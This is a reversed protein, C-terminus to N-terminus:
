DTFGSDILWEGDSKVLTPDINAGKVVATASDGDVEISTVEASRLESKEAEGYNKGMAGVLEPCKINRLQPLSTKAVQVLEQRGSPSLYDCATEGDDDALAAFYGTLAEDIKDDDSDSSGCGALAFLAAAVVLVRVGALSRM